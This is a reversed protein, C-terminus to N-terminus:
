PQMPRLADPAVKLGQQVLSERVESLSRATFKFTGSANNISTVTGSEDVFLEGAGSAARAGGLVEPHLHPRYNPMVFIKGGTSRVYVYSGARLGKTAIEGAQTYLEPDSPYKFEAPRQYAWETKTVDGTRPRAARGVLVPLEGAMIILTATPPFVVGFARVSQNGNWIASNRARFLNTRERESEVIQQDNTGPYQGRLQDWYSRKRSVFSWRAETEKSAGGADIFQRMSENTHHWNGALQLFTIAVDETWPLANVAASSIKGASRAVADSYLANFNQFEEYKRRAVMHSPDVGDPIWGINPDYRGSMRTPVSQSGTSGLLNPYTSDITGFYSTQADPNFAALGSPDTANVPNNRVYTYWNSGERAPDQNLFRGLKPDYFRHGFYALDNETDFMQGTYRHRPSTASGSGTTQKGFADYDLSDVQTGDDNLVKRVSGQHDGIFWRTTGSVDEALVQDPGPGYLYRSQISSFDGGDLV